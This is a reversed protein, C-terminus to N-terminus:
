VNLNFIEFPSKSSTYIKIRFFVIIVIEYNGVWGRGIDFNEISISVKNILFSTATIDEWLPLFLIGFLKEFIEKSIKYFTINVYQKFKKLRSHTM